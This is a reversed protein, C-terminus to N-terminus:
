CIMSKNNPPEKTLSSLLLGYKNSGRNTDNSSKFPNVSSSAFCCCCFAITTTLVPRQLLFARGHFATSTAADFKSPRISGAPVGADDLEAPRWILVVRKIEKCSSSSDIDFSASVGNNNPHFPACMSSSPFFVVFLPDPKSALFSHSFRKGIIRMRSQSGM